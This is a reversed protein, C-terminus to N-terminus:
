DGQKRLLLVSLITLVPVFAALAFFYPYLDAFGLAKSFTGRSILLVWTTPYLKGAIAAGGELSTIPHTLGSFQIAPLMTALATGFLAAIQTRTFASILLGLGTAAIVYLLAGAALALLSGKLPVGFATVALLVLGFFNIMGLGVYPLQKGLLFELRTVPTVYLNIISGLEKERVVGLAMLMSPIFILLIPIVAPVMADLSRVDQNYRYRVAVEAAGFQAPTGLADYSLESLYGLHVGQVYGLITEARFPMAGDIWVGIEPKAGRKLDRGFGPPIEVALSLEGTRMRHDLQTQDAIPARTVFYRSDEFNRLYARSEPSQDRDLAAYPLDQVDMSIGYGLIFMLLATGILAFVLRIPDRMLELAERHAYSAVRQPSFRRPPAATQSAPRPVEPAAQVPAAAASGSARELYEIFAAELNGGGHGAALAAPTDSALVRGAHMLSIRDCRQAENMFHTSIFITVGRLTAVLRHPSESM